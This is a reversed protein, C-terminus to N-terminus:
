NVKALITSNIDNHLVAVGLASGLGIAVTVQVAQAEAYATEEAKIEVDGLATVTLAGTSKAVVNNNITNNLAIGGGSVAVWGMSVAATVATVDELRAAADAWVDIDGGATVTDSGTGQLYAQVDNAILNNVTSIGVSIASLSTSISVGVASAYDVKSDSDAKVEINDAASVDSDEIYAHVDSNFTNSVSAGSAAFASGIGVAIAISGAFVTAGIVDTSAAEITVDSTSTLTSDLAYALVESDYDTIGITTPGILNTGFATGVSGAVAVLGGAVAGSVAGVIATITSSSDADLTIDAGVPPTGVHTTAVISNDTFAKVSNAITNTADSGAGSLAVGVLGIAASLSAAI